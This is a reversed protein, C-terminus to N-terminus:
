DGTPRLTAPGATNGMAADREIMTGCVTERFTRPTNPSPGTRPFRSPRAVSGPCASAAPAQVTNAARWRGAVAAVSFIVVAVTGVEPGKKLWQPPGIDNQEFRVIPTGCEPCIGSANGTLDYGCRHCRGAPPTYHSVYNHYGRFVVAPLSIVVTGLLICFLVADIRSWTEHRFYAEFAVIPVGVGLIAYLWWNSALIQRLRSPM